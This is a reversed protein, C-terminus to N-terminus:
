WRNNVTIYSLDNKMDIDNNSKFDYLKIYKDMRNNTIIQDNIYVKIDNNIGAIDYARKILLSYIDDTIYKLGFKDLDPKFSIKTYSKKNYDIIIPKSRESM